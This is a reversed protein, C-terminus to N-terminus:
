MQEFGGEIYTGTGYQGGGLQAARLTDYFIARSAMHYPVVWLTGIGFVMSGVIYWGIFSLDQVFLDWKHGNMMMRSETICTKWDYEPNDIKIYYAMSYSYSKVIGPVILLLGWLFTFIGTLLGILFNQGFDETFGKFLDGFDMAGGNRYQKLFIYDLGYSMPGLVILAGIGPLVSGAAGCIAGYVFCVLLAMLWLNGFIQGGLQQRARAKIEKRDM